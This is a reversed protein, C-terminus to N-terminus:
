SAHDPAVAPANSSSGAGSGAGAGHRRATLNLMAAKRGSIVFPSRALPQGNLTAAVTYSGPHLFIAATYNNEKTLTTMSEPYDPSTVIVLTGNLSENGQVTIYSTPEPVHAWRWYMSASALVTLAISFIIVFRVLRGRCPPFAAWPPAVPEGNSPAGTADLARAATLNAATKDRM